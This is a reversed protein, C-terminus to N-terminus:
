LNAKCRDRKTDDRIHDSCLLDTRELFHPLVQRQWRGVRLINSGLQKQRGDDVVAGFVGGEHATTRTLYGFVLIPALRLDRHRILPIAEGYTSEVTFKSVKSIPVVSCAQLELELGRYIASM